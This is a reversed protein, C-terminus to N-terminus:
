NLQLRTMLTINYVAMLRCHQPELKLYEVSHQPYDCNRLMHCIRAYPAAM